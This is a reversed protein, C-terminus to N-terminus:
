SEQGREELAALRKQMEGLERQRLAVEERLWAAENAPESPGLPDPSAYYGPYGFYAPGWGAGWM